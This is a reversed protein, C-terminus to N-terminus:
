CSFHQMAANFADDEEQCVSCGFEESIEWGHKDCTLPMSTTAHKYGYRQVDWVLGNIMIADDINLTHVLQRSIDLLMAQMCVVDSALVKRDTLMTMTIVEKVPTIVIEHVAGVCSYEYSCV